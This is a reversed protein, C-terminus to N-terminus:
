NKGLIKKGYKCFELIPCEGCRPNKAKCYLRGHAIMYRHVLDYDLGQFLEMLKGRIEEYKAREDVIGLRRSIRAIHTDVGITKHGYVALFVDATKPGLGTIKKLMERAKETEMKIVENLDLGSIVLKALNYIRVAKQNYLGSVKISEKVKEIGAKVINQPTLGVYEKLNELAKKANKDNTNQSLIIAVLREFPEGKERDVVYLQEDLNITRQLKEFILRGRENDIRLTSRVGILM